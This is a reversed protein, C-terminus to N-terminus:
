VYKVHWSILSIQGENILLYNKAAQSFSFFSLVRRFYECRAAMIVKHAHFEQNEVVFTIDSYDNSNLLASIDNALGTVHCVDGTTTRSRLHPDESM